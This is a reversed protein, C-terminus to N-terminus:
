QNPIDNRAKVLLERPICIIREGNGCNAWSPLSAEATIDRGIVAFDGNELELIDPCGATNMCEKTLQREGIRRIIRM